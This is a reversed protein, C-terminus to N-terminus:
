YGVLHKWSAIRAALLCGLVSVTGTLTLGHQFGAIEACCALYNAFLGTSFLDDYCQLTARVLMKGAGDGSSCTMDFMIVCSRVTELVRRLYTDVVFM